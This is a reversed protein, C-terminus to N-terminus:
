KLLNVFKNIKNNKWDMIRVYKGNHKFPDNLICGNCTKM